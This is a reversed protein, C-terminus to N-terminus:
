DRPLVLVTLALLALGGLAVGAPVVSAGAVLLLVLGVLQLGVQIVVLRRLDPLLARVEVRATPPVHACWWSLRLVLHALPLLALVVADFPGPGGALALGGLVVLVHPVPPRCLGAVVAGVLVALSWRLAPDGVVPQLAIGTYAAAVLLLAVRLALGGVTTGTDVDVRPPAAAGATDRSVLPGSM